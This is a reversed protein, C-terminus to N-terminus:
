SEDHQVLVRRIEHIAHEIRVPREHPWVAPAINPSDGRAHEQGVIEHAHEASRTELIHSEEAPHIAFRQRPLAPTADDEAALGLSERCDGCMSGRREARWIRPPSARVPMTRM